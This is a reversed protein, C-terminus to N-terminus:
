TSIEFQKLRKKRLDTLKKISNVAGTNHVERHHFQCLPVSNEMSVEGGLSKPIIEHLASYKRFCIICRYQFKGAVQKRFDLPNQMYTIM